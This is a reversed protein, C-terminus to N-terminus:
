GAASGALEGVMAHLRGAHRRVSRQERVAPDAHQQREPDHVPRRRGDAGKFNPVAINGLYRLQYVFGYARKPRRTRSTPRSTTASTTTRGASGSASARPAWRWARRPSRTTPSAWAACRSTTTSCTSARRDTKPRSRRATTTTSSTTRSRARLPQRPRRHGVQVEDRGLRWRRRQRGAHVPLRQGADADARELHHMHIPYRGILNTTTNLPLYTTRGLDRFLAYRIDVDAMHTAIIHGRTGTASESRIIVNRTLNGVHPLFDLVGNLDRAGLHDYQLASNLTVRAATLRSRRAGDARGVPQRRQDLRQRHSREGQHAAHRAPRAPRRGELGVVAESLTLTTHGARPESRSACSPRRGCRQRADDGQRLHHHRHRVALPDAM